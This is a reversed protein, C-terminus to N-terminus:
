RPRYQTPNTPNVEYRQGDPTTYTGDANLTDTNPNATTWAQTTYNYLTVTQRRM